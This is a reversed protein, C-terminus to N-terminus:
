FLTFFLDAALHIEFWFTKMMPPTVKFLRNLIPVRCLLRVKPLCSVICTHAAVTRCLHRIFSAPLFQLLKFYSSPYIVKFIIFSVFPQSSFMSQFRIPRHVTTIHMIRRPILRRCTASLLTHISSPKQVLCGLRQLLGSQWSQM